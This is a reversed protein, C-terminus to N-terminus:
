QYSQGTVEVTMNPVRLALPLPHNFSKWVFAEATYNDAELPTWSVGVTFSKGAALLGEVSELQVIIEKSNKIQVIYAFSQESQENNKIESRIIASQGVSVTGLPSNRQDTISSQTISITEDSDVIPINLASSGKGSTNGPSINADNSSLIEFSTFAVEDHNKTRVTWTGLAADSPVKFIWQFYGESNVQSQGRLHLKGNPDFVQLVISQNEIFSSSSGTITVMDGQYYRRQDSVISVRPEVPEPQQVKTGEAVHVTLLSYGSVFNDKSANVILNYSAPKLETISYVYRGVDVRSLTVETSENAGFKADIVDPDTPKNGVGIVEVSFRIVEDQGYVQKDSKIFVNLKGFISIGSAPVSNAVPDEVMVRGMMWPHLACLYPYEGAQTFTFTFEKGQRMLGSDFVRGWKTKPTGDTVTHPDKDLNMWSVSDGVNIAVISPNYFRGNEVNASGFVIDVNHTKNGSKEAIGIQPFSAMSLLLAIILLAFLHKRM